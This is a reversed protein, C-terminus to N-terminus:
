DKELAVNNKVLRDELARTNNLMRQYTLGSYSLPYLLLGANEVGQHCLDAVMRIMSDTDSSTSPGSGDLIALVYTKGTAGFEQEVDRKM